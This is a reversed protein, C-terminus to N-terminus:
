LGFISKFLSRYDLAEFRPAFISREDRRSNRFDDTAAAHEDASALPATGSSRSATGADVEALGAARGAVSAILFPKTNVM